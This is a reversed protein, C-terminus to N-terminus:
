PDDTDTDTDTGAGAADAAAALAEDWTLFFRAEVALADRLTFAGGIPQRVSVGTGRPRGGVWFLAVVRDGVERVEEIELAFDDFTETWAATFRRVGDHGPYDSEDPWEPVAHWVADPAVHPLAADVGEASFAELMERVVEVNERAM